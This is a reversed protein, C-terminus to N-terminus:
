EKGNKLADISELEQMKAIIQNLMDLTLDDALSDLDVAPTYYWKKNRYDSGSFAYPQKSYKIHGIVGYTPDDSVVEWVCRDCNDYYHIFKLKM